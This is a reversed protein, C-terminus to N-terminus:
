SRNANGDAPHGSQMAEVVGKVLSLALAYRMRMPGLIAVFGPVGAINCSSLVLSFPSLEARQTEDGIAVAPTDTRGQELLVSELEEPHDLIRVLLRLNEPDTFEPQGMIETAGQLHLVQLPSDAFVRNRARAVTRALEGGAGTRDRLAAELHARAAAPTRDAAIENLMEGATDLTAQAVPHDLSVVETRVVGNDLTMVVLMRSSELSVLEIRQVHAPPASQVALGMGVNSSLGALLTSVRGLIEPVERPAPEAQLVTHIRRLWTDPLRLPRCFHDVYARYGERTPVRGASTHPQQLLGKEELGHLVHRISASSLDLGLEKHLSASSVPGAERVHLEVLAELITRERENLDM